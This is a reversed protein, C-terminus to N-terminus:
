RLSRFFERLDQVFLEPEELAAFHGGKPMKTYRQLNAQRAVWERPTQAERPFLAFAAPVDSREKQGTDSQGTDGGGWAAQADAQYIRASSGATQTVWYLMINTLLEDRGGFAGEVGNDLSDAGAGTSVFSLIWAALGVPSDNLGFAITQPKTSQLMAYAGESFWWGQIFQAFEQESKSLNEEQGTPYGVDTLHIGTIREPYQKSLALTVGSGVDGGAAAFRKYGLGTMLQAWLDAVGSSTMTKRESFGFGPVSPVIVDFSDEDSGGYQEPNTLMPIIKHFRYFSDPWGHTLIIPTPNKGEGKAHVFHINVGDVDAKFQPLANLKAENERWDYGSLWYDVLDKMYALNTGMSWGAGEVEDPWRTRKLRTHLDDLVDQPINIQFPQTKM